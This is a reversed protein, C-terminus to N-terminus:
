LRPSSIFRSVAITVIWFVWRWGLAQTVYGGVIPGIAPGMLPGFTWVAMAFGRESQVFVDAVTAGGITLVASAEMGALTRFVILAPLNPSLACGVTFLTFLVNTVNYPLLRGYMESIPAVILPGIALGLNYVCV